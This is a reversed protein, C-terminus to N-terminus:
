MSRLDYNSVKSCSLLKQLYTAAAPDVGSSKEFVIRAYDAKPIHDTASRTWDFQPDMQNAHIHDRGLYIAAILQEQVDASYKALLAAADRESRPPNQITDNIAQYIDM